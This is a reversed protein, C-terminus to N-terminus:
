FLSLQDPDGAAVKATAVMDIGEVQDHVHVTECKWCTVDACKRIISEYHLPVPEYPKRFQLGQGCGFCDFFAVMWAAHKLGSEHGTEDVFHFELEEM